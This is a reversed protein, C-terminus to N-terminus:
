IFTKIMHYIDTSSWGKDWLRFENDLDRNLYFWKLDTRYNM